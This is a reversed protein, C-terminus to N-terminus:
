TSSLPRPRRMSTPVGRARMPIEWDQINTTALCRRLRPAAGEHLPTLPSSRRVHLAAKPGGLGFAARDNSGSPASGGVTLGASSGEDFWDAKRTVGDGRHMACSSRGRWATVRRPRSAVRRGVDFCRDLRENGAAVFQVDSVLAASPSDSSTRAQKARRAAAVLHRRRARSPAKHSGVRQSSM